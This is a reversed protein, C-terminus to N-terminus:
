LPLPSGATPISGVVEEKGLLYEEVSNRRCTTAEDAGPRGGPELSGWTRVTGPTPCSSPDQVPRPRKEASGCLASPPLRVRVGRHAGSKSAPTDVTGGCGCIVVRLRSETRHVCEDTPGLGGEDLREGERATQTADESTRVTRSCTRGEATIDRAEECGGSPPYHTDEATTGPLPTSGRRRM